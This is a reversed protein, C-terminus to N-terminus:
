IILFLIRRLLNNHERFRKRLYRVTCPTAFSVISIEHRRQEARGPFVFVGSKRTTTQKVTYDCKM